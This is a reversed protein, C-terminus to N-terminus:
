YDKGRFKLEYNLILRYETIASLTGATNTEVYGARARLQLPKLWDPATKDPTQYILDFNYETNQPLYAGTTPTLAGAGFTGSAIFTM